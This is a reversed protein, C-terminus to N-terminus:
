HYLYHFLLFYATLPHLILQLHFSKLLRGPAASMPNVPVPWHDALQRFFNAQKSQGKPIFGTAM